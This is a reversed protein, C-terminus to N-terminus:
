VNKMMIPKLLLEDDKGVTLVKWEEKQKKATGGLHEEHIM